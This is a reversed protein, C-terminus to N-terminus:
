TLYFGGRGWALCSVRCPSSRLLLPAPAKTQCRSALHPSTLSSPRATHWVFTHGGMHLRAQEFSEPDMLHVTADGKSSGPTTFLVQAPARLM